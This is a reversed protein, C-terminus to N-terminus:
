IHNLRKYTVVEFNYDNRNNKKFSKRDVIQWKDWNIAPMFTDAKGNYDVQTIILTDVLDLSQEYISGGGIIFIKDDFMKAQDIAKELNSFSCVEYANICDPQSTIVFNMRKPLAKGISDFTKRGMIITHGSTIKKFNKLDDSLHWPMTGNLGIQNQQGLAAILIINPNQQNKKHM